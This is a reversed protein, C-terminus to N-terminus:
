SAEHTKALAYCGYLVSDNGYQAVAFEPIKPNPIGPLKLLDMLPERFKDLQLGLGGGTIILDPTLLARIASFGPALLQCHELWIKPDDTESALTGYKEKFAAGSAIHDWFRLEGEHPVLMFGGEDHIFDEDLIGNIVIATGIGTSITVYVITHYKKPDYALAEGLGAAKADNELLITPSAGLETQLDSVISINKWPRHGMAVITGKQRDIVGPVAMSISTIEEGSTFNQIDKALTKVFDPYDDHTLSRFTRDLAGRGDFLGLLTKTAGIDVGLIM